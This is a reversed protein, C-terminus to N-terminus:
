AEKRIIEEAIDRPDYHMMFEYDTDLRDKLRYSNMLEAAMKEPIDNYEMAKMVDAVYNRKIEQISRRKMINMGRRSFEIVSTIFCPAPVREQERNQDKQFAQAMSIFIARM